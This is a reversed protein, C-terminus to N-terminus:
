PPASVPPKSLRGTALDAYDLIFARGLKMSHNLVLALAKMKWEIWGTAKLGGRSANPM